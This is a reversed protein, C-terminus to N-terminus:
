INQFESKVKDLELPEIQERQKQSCLILGIPPEEGSKPECKDLLRLYLEM